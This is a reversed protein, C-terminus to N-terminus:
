AHLGNLFEPLTTRLYIRDITSAKVADVYSKDPISCMPPDVKSSSPANAGRM